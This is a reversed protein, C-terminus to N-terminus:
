KFNYKRPKKTIKHFFTWCGFSFNGDIYRSKSNNISDEGAQVSKRISQNQDKGVVKMSEKHFSPTSSIKSILNTNNGVRAKKLWALSSSPFFMKLLFTESTSIEEKKKKNKKRITNDTIISTENSQVLKQHHHDVMDQFSLEFSSEPIEQIMKMLEKRSKAIAETRSTPSLYSLNNSTLLLSPPSHFVVGYGGEEEELESSNTNSSSNNCWFSFERDEQHHM